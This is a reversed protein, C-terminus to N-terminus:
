RGGRSFGRGRFRGEGEGGGDRDRSQAESGGADGSAAPASSQEAPYLSLFTDLDAPLKLEVGADEFRSRTARSNQWEEESIKEDPGALNRFAERAVRVTAEDLRPRPGGSPAAASTGANGGAEGSDKSKEAITLEYPTLFGDRNRDLALFEPISVRSKWQIWEYLGLQGDKDSDGETYKSPMEVTVRERPKPGSQGSSRNGDRGRDSRDQDGGGGRQQEEALRIFEDRSVDDRGGLRERLPGRVREIEDEDLEGDRDRDYYAFIRDPSFQAAAPTANFALGFGIVACTGLIRSM